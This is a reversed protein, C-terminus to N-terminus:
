LRFVITNKRLASNDSYPANNKKELKEANWFGLYKFRIPYDSAGSTWIKGDAGRTRASGFNGVEAVTWAKQFLRLFDYVVYFPFM